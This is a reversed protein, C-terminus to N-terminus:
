RATDRAPAAVPGGVVRELTARRRFYDALAEYYRDRLGVVNREAEILSLFPVKGTVYAAQAARVNAEASRLITDRYLRVSRESRQVRAYAEQVQFNVQDTLRALEARRQAIRAEAEAVAGYRRKKYIPLNLRVGLMTTLDRNDSVNGM